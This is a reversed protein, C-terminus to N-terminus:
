RTDLSSRSLLSHSPQHVLELLLQLWDLSFHVDSRSRGSTECGPIMVVQDVWGTGWGKGGM